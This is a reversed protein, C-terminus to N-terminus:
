LVRWVQVRCNGYDVIIVRGRSDVAAGWPNRLQGPARGPLGWTGLSRGEPSFRQIRNNGYECVVLSGDPMRNVDYPYRLEGAGQGVRGIRRLFRGTLDYCAIRHNCADAIYLIRREGDVCMASPRSLQDEREGFTGFSGIFQGQESFINIRDNGGYESVFIRGDPLVEVDTPYIFEGPGTGYRGFRRLLRGAPSYVMIRHYHTDAVYVNGDPGVSLGIPKGARSEPMMWGGLHRGDCTLHQIRAAKDVVFITDDRTIAIGRPYIFQGEGKGTGGFWGVVDPEGSAGPRDCGALLCLLVLGAAGRGRIGKVTRVLGFVLGTVVAGFVILLLSSAIVQQDRAYHMQNLLQQAFNPVGAPLLVLTAALETMSLAMALLTGAALAPWLTPLWVEVLATVGRAGDLRALESLQEPTSAQVWFLVLVAVVGMEAAHGMSVIWPQNYIAAALLGRNFTFVMASAVLSGPLLAAAFTILRMWRSLRVRGGHAQGWIGLAMVAVLVGAGLAIGASYLLGDWSLRGFEIFVGLGHIRTALLVVPAALSLVWLAGAAIWLTRPCIENDPVDFTQATPRLFRNLVWAAGAAPIVMPLGAWAVAHVNGTLQYLTALETGVTDAASLHFVAFQSLTLVFVLIWATAVAPRLIPLGVWWWRALTGAELRAQSWVAPDTRQWATALVLGCMPWYWLGLATLSRTWAVAALFADSRGLWMGLRSDPLLILGWAYHIIQPPVLLVTVLLLPGWRRAWANAGILRGAPAGALVSLTAVAAAAGLSRTWLQVYRSLSLDEARPLDGPRLTVALWGLPLCVVVLWILTGTWTIIRLPPSLRHHGQRM